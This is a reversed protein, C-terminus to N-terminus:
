QSLYRKQASAQFVWCSGLAILNYIIPMIVYWQEELLAVHKSMEISKGSTADKISYTVTDEVGVGNILGLNMYPIFSTALQHRSFWGPNEFTGDRIGGQNIAM